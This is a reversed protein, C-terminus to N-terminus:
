QRKSSRMFFANDISNRDLIQDDYCTYNPDSVTSYLLADLKCTRMELIAKCVDIPVNKNLMVNYCFLSAGLNSRAFGDRISEMATKKLTYSNVYFANRLESSTMCVILDHGVPLIATGSKTRLVATGRISDACYGGEVQNPSAVTHYQLWPLFLQRSVVKQWKGAFVSSTSLLGIVFALVLYFKSVNSIRKM